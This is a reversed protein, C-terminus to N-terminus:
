FSMVCRKVSLGIRTVAILAAISTIGIQCLHHNWQLQEIYTEALLLIFITSIIGGGLVNWLCSLIKIIPQGHMTTYRQNIELKICLIRM